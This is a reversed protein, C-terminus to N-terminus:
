PWDSLTSRTTKKGVRHGFGLQQAPTVDGTLEDDYEDSGSLSAYSILMHPISSGMVTGPSPPAQFSTGVTGPPTTQFSSFGVGPPPPAYSIGLGGLHSQTLPTLGFSFSSMDLDLCDFPDGHNFSGLDGHGRGGSREGREGGRGPDGISVMYKRIITQVKKAFSATQTSSSPPGQIVGIAMDDVEHMMSIMM